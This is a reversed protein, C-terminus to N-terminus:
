FLPLQKIWLYVSLYTELESSDSLLFRRFEKDIKSNYRHNFFTKVHKPEIPKKGRSRFHFKKLIPSQHLMALIASLKKDNGRSKIFDYDNTIIKEDVLISEIRGLATTREVIETYSFVGTKEGRFDYNKAEFADPEPSQTIPAPNIIFQHTEEVIFKQDVSEHFYNELLEHKTIPEQNLISFHASQFELYLRILQFKLYHVIYADDNLPSIDEFPLTKLRIVEETDRCKSDLSKIVYDVHFLKENDSEASQINQNSANFFQIAENNILRHFYKRKKSFPKPFNVKYLPQSLPFIELTEVFLQNYKQDSHNLLWPRLSIHLIDNYINLNPLM